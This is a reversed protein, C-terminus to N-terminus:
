YEKYMNSISYKQTVWFEHEGVTIDNEQNYDGSEEELAANNSTTASNDVTQTKGTHLYSSRTGPASSTNGKSLHFVGSYTKRKKEEKHFIWKRWEKRAVPSFMVYFMFIFFGQFAVLITFFSNFIIPVAPIPINTSAALAFGWGLGFLISVGMTVRLQQKLEVMVEKRKAKVLKEQSKKILRYM